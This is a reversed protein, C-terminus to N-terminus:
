AKLTIPLGAVMFIVHHAQEALTQNLVGQFDRFRRALANDPVIGLGIENSVFILQATCQEIAKLLVAIESEIDHDLLVINSLWLTLCDVLITTQKGDERRLASALHVPVEITRFSADRSVQHCVIRKEMEEDFAQATAIYLARGGTSLALAEAKRSKGSRTGGLILTVNKNTM